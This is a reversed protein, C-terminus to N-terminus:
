KVINQIKISMSYSSPHEKRSDSWKSMVLNAQIQIFGNAKIEVVKGVVKKYFSDQATVGAEITQGITLNTM